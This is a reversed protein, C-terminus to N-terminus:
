TKEDGEEAHGASFRYPCSRRLNCKKCIETQTWSPMKVGIGIIMSISKQPVMLGTSTLKVGIKEASVWQFIPRQESLPLGPMGPNVSGSARYGMAVAEEAVRLHVYRAVLDVAASGMGDLLLGRFTQGHRTYASARGEIMGGITAVALALYKARPFLSPLLSGPLIRKGELVTQAGAITEVRFLRFVAAPQLLRSTEIERILEQIMTKIGPKINRREGLGVRRFIDRENLVLPINTLLTMRPSSDPPSVSGEKM